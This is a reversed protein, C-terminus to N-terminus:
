AHAECKPRPLPSRSGREGPGPACRRPFRSRARHADRRRTSAASGTRRVIESHMAGAFTWSSSLPLAGLEVRVECGVHFFNESVTLTSDALSPTIRSELMSMM